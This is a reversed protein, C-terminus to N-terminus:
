SQFHEFITKTDPFTGKIKEGNKELLGLLSFKLKEFQKM